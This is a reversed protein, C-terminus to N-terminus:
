NSNKNQEADEKCAWKMMVSFESMCKVNLDINLTDHNDKKDSANDAHQIQMVHLISSHTWIKKFQFFDWIMQNLESVEQLSKDTHSLKM